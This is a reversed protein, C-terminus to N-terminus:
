EKKTIKTSWDSHVVFPQALGNRIMYNGLADPIEIDGNRTPIGIKNKLTFDYPDDISWKIKITGDSEKSYDARVFFNNNLYFIQSETSILIGNEIGESDGRIERQMLKEDAVCKCSLSSIHGENNGQEILRSIEQGMQGMASQVVRSSEYLKSDVDLTEGSGDLYREMARSPWYGAKIRGGYQISKFLAVLFNADDDSIKTESKMKDVIDEIRQNVENPNGWFISWGIKALNSAFGSFSIEKPPDNSTIDQSTEVVKGNSLQIKITTDIGGSLGSKIEKYVNDNIIQYNVRKDFELISDGKQNIIIGESDKSLTTTGGIPTVTILTERKAARLSNEGFLGDPTIGKVIQFKRVAAMTKDDYKGSIDTVSIYPSDTKPNIERSLFQQVLTVDPGEDDLTFYRKNNSNELNVNIYGDQPNLSRSNLEFDYDGGSAAYNDSSLVVYNSGELRSLTLDDPKGFILNIPKSQKNAVLHEGLYYFSGKNKIKIDKNFDLEDNIDVQIHGKVKSYDVAKITGRMFFSSSEDISEINANNLTLLNKNKNYSFPSIEKFEIGGFSKAQGTIIGEESIKITKGDVIM